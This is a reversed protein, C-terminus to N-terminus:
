IHILALNKPRCQRGIHVAALPKLGAAKEQKSKAGHVLESDVKYDEESFKGWLAEFLRKEKDDPTEGNRQTRRCVPSKHASCSATQTPAIREKRNYYYQEIPITLSLFKQLQGLHFKVRYWTPREPLVSIHLLSLEQFIGKKWRFGEKTNIM